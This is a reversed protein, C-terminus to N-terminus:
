HLWHLSPLFLIRKMNFSGYDILKKIQKVVKKGTEVRLSLQLWPLQFHSHLRQLTQTQLNKRTTRQLFDSALKRHVCRACCMVCCPMAYISLSRFLALSFIWNDNPEAKEVYLQARHLVFFTM